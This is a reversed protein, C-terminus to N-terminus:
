WRAVQDLFTKELERAKAAALQASRVTEDLIELKNRLENAKTRLADLDGCIDAVYIGGQWWQAVEVHEIQRAIYDARQINVELDWEVSELYPLVTTYAMPHAFRRYRECLVVFDRKRTELDEAVGVATDEAQWKADAMEQYSVGNSKTRRHHSSKRPSDHSREHHDYRPVGYFEQPEEEYIPARHARSAHRHSSRPRDDTRKRDRSRGEDDARPRSKAKREGDAPTPGKPKEANGGTSASAGSITLKEYAKQIELFAEHSEKSDGAKDPHHVLSLKHYAKRIASRDAGPAVGLVKYPDM